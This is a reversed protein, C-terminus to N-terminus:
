ASQQRRHRREREKAALESRHARKWRHNHERVREPNSARWAQLVQQMCVTWYFSLGDKMARNPSFAGLPQERGCKKCLKTSGGM